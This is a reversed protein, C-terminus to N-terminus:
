PEKIILNREKVYDPIKDYFLVEDEDEESLAANMMAVMALFLTLGAVM